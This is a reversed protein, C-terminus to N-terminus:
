TIYLPHCFHLMLAPPLVHVMFQDPKAKWSETVQSAQSWMPLLVDWDQTCSLKSICDPKEAWAEMKDWLITYDSFVCVRSESGKLWLRLKGSSIKTIWVLQETERLKVKRDIFLFSSLFFLALNVCKNQPKYSIIHSFGKSCHRFYLLYEISIIIEEMEELSCYANM